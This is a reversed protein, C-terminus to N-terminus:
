KVTGYFMVRGAAGAAIPQSFKWRVATVDGVQAARMTGDGKAVKLTSLAGYTKGDVSVTAWAQEVGSYSVTKPIPNDIVFGTAPKTGANAYSIIIVLPEGPLVTKPEQLTNKKNGQADTVTRAVFVENKLTVSNQAFAISPLMAAILFAAYKM